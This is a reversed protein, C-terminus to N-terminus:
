NKKAASFSGRLQPLRRVFQLVREGLELLGLLPTHLLLPQMREAAHRAPDRM